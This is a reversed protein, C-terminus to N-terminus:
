EFTFGADVYFVDFLALQISNAGVLFLRGNEGEFDIDGVSTGAIQGDGNFDIVDGYAADTDPLSNINMNVFFDGAIDVGPVGSLGGSGSAKLATYSTPTSAGDNILALTFDVDSLSVGTADGTGGGAGAFADVGSGFVVLYDTNITTFDTDDLETSNLAVKFEGTATKFGFFGSISVFGFLDITLNGAISLLPGENGDVDIVVSGTPPIFNLLGDDGAYDDTDEFDLVKTSEPISTKNVVVELTDVGVTM